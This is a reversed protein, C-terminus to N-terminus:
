LGRRNFAARLKELAADAAIDGYRRADDDSMDGNHTINVEVRPAFVDGAPVTNGVNASFRAATAANAAAGIRAFMAELARKKKDDLVLEGKELLALVEKDKTSGQDGVVGGTHYKDFLKTGGVHDIYWVGTPEDRVVKLGYQALSSGLRLSEDSLRKQESSNGNSKAVLWAQANQKMQTVVAQVGAEDVVNDILNNHMPNTPAIGLDGGSNRAAMVNGNYEKVAATANEWATKLSDLGDISDCYQDNYAQLKSYMGDWDEELMKIAKRYLSMWGDVADELIKKEEEKEKEFAEQEDDLADITQDLGYERQLKALEKNKEALQKELDQRKAAAERSDDLSLQAIKSQLEAIEAVLDAVEEEHDLEDNSQQLLKKKLDILEQYKDIQEDLADIMDENEQKLMDITMNIIEDISDKRVEYLKGAIQNHQTVYDDYAMLGKEYAAKIDKLWKEYYDTKTFGVKGAGSGWLDFTDAYSEYDDYVKQIMDMIAKCTDKWQKRVKQMFDGNESLGYAVGWDIMKKTEDLIQDYTTRAATVQGNDLRSEAITNYDNVFDEFTTLRGQFVEKELDWIEEQYKAEDKVRYEDRVKAVGAYYEEYTIREMELQHKLIKLRKELAQKFKDTSSSSSKTFNSNLANLVDKMTQEYASIDSALKGAQEQQGRLYNGDKRVNGSTDVVTRGGGAAMLAQTKIIETQLEKLRSKAEAYNMGNIAKATKLSTEALALMAAKSALAAKGQATLKGESDYLASLLAPFVGELKEVSDKSLGGYEKFDKMAATVADTKAKMADITDYDVSDLKEATTAAAGGVSLIGDILEQFGEAGASYDVGLLLMLSALFSKLQEETETLVEGNEGKALIDNWMENLTAGTLKGDQQLQDLTTKLDAFRFEGLVARITEGSGQATGEMQALALMMETTVDLIRQGEETVGSIGSESVLGDAEQYIQRMQELAKKARDAAEDAAKGAKKAADEDGRAHAASVGELAAQEDLKAANYLDQYYLFGGYGTTKHGSHGQTKSLSFTRQNEFAFAKEAAVAQEEELQKKLRLKIELQENEEKLKNIEAQDALTPNEIANLEELRAKVETLESEIESIESRTEELEKQKNKFSPLNEAIWKVAAVAGALALVSGGILLLGSGVTVEMGAIVAGLGPLLALVKQIATGMNVISEGMKAFVTTAALTKIIGSLVVLFASLEVVATSLGGTLDDIGNLLNVVWKAADVIFKVLGSGLVKMSFQEYATSLQNMKGQISDLYVDNARALTGAANGAAEYSGTLDDLNTIISALVQANRKGALDELLQAKNIDSLGDYVKAIETLITYVSKYTNDDLMIDVGSLAKIEARYKSTSKVVDDVEEGMETLESTASRIRASVSKLATGVTEANQVAANGATFIAITEDLTAGGAAMAAGGRQMAEGLEGASIAYEQGVKVLKDVVGEMEAPAINFSKMISTLSATASDVDTAAVNAYRATVDALDLSDSLDYGLRAYTETSGIIASTTSGVTQAVRSAKNAFADLADGATGTVISIQTLAADLETVNTYIQRIAQMAKAAAAGLFAYGLQDKFLRGIRAGFTEVELGSERAQYQLEKFASLYEQLTGPRQVSGAGVKYSGTQGQQALDNIKAMLAPNKTTAGARQLKNYYGLVQSSMNKISQTQVDIKSANSVFTKYERNVSGQVKQLEQYAETVRRLQQTKTATDQAAFGPQQTVAYERQFQGQAAAYRKLAGSSALDKAVSKEVDTGSLGQRMSNWTNLQKNADQYGKAMEGVSAVEKNYASQAKAAATAATNKAKTFTDTQKIAENLSKMSMNQTGPTTLYDLKQNALRQSWERIQATVINREPSGEAYSRWQTKLRELYAQQSALSQITPATGRPSRASGGQGGTGGQSIVPNVNIDFTRSTLAAQISTVISATNFTVDFSHGALAAQISQVLTTPNVEVNLKPPTVRNCIEQLKAAFQSIDAQEEKPLVLVRFANNSM